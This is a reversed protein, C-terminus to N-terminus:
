VDRSSKLCAYKLDVEELAKSTELGAPMCNAFQKDLLKRYTRQRVFHPEHLISLQQDQTAM